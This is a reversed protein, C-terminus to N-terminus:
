GKKIANWADEVSKYHVRKGDANVHTSMREFEDDFILVFYQDPLSDIERLVCMRNYYTDPIFRNIYWEADDDDFYPHHRTFLKMAERFNEPEKEKPFHIVENLKGLKEFERQIQQLVKKDTKKKKKNKM